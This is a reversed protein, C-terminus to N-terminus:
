MLELGLESQLNLRLNKMSVVLGILVMNRICEGYAIMRMMRTESTIIMNYGALKKAKEIAKENIEVKIKGDTKQGKQDASVFTVYKASDGYESKKAQCAKLKKAKEVQRNIEYKQKEALKPNFTVIRKEHLKLTKKHGATSKIIRINM